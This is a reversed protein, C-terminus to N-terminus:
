LRTPHLPRPPVSLSSLPQISTSRQILPNTDRSSSVNALAIDLLEGGVNDYSPLTSWTLLTDQIGTSQIHRLLRSKSSIWDMLPSGRSPMLWTKKRITSDPRSDSITSSLTSNRTTESPALSRTQSANTDNQYTWFGTRNCAHVHCSHQAEYM